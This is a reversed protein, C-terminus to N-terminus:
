LVACDVDAVQGRKICLIEGGLSEMRGDPHMRLMAPASIGYGCAGPPQLQMAARLEQWDDEEGHADCIAPVFGMCPFLRASTDDDPDPWTIWERGLMVSGASLGIFPVGAEFRARLVPMIGAAWLADMGAEVDGGSIFIVDAETVTQQAIQDRNKRKGCTPALVVDRAGAREFLEGLRHFFSANDGSAAGVYAIRPAPQHSAHLADRLLTTIHGRDSGPGGALLYINSQM